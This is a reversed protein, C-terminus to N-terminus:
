HLSTPADYAVMKGDDHRKAMEEAMLKIGLILAKLDRENMDPEQDGWIAEIIQQEEKTM